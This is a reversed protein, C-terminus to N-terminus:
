RVQKGVLGYFLFSGIWKCSVGVAIGVVTDVLRLLPQQWADQPSMAAVVMVVTTTIATTTIDGRRDLLTMVVTGIGLLAAMGIPTFPLIWLYALCLAFSVSTAILRAIGASVSDLRTERFVFITAVVAWMGGLFDSPKDVFRSLGYTMIWYAVFCAIAMDVAYVFAWLSINEHKKKDQMPEIEV